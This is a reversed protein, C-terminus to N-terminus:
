GTVKENSIIYKKLELLEMKNRDIKQIEKRMIDMSEKLDKLM